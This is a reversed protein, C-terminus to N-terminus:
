KRASFILGLDDSRVPREDYGGYVSIEAFGAQRLMLLLENRFFARDHLIHAEQKVAQGDHWLTAQIERTWLQELPDFALRRGRLEIEDGDAARRREGKEPWPEPLSRAEEPIWFRWRDAEAYPLSVNFVLGGGPALHECCRRLTEQSGVIGFSDCIYITRYTRPPALDDGAQEFLRAALGAKTLQARCYALMDASVDCGDVELGARLLPLLIRGTGCGLDLVPQGYRQIATRFFRLEEDTAVNFEAWWRAVLGYHWTRRTENM